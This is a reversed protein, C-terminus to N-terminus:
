NGFRNLTKRSLLLPPLILPLVKAMRVLLRGIRHTPHGAVTSFGTGGLNKASFETIFGSLEDM